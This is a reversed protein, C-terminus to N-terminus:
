PTTFDFSVPSFSPPFSVPTKSWTELSNRHRIALFYTHNSVSGPFIITVNGSSTLIGKASLVFDYPATSNHLEVVITDCAISSASMENNFLVPRMQGNGAYFGEIFVKLNLSVSSNISFNGTSYYSCKTATGVAITGSQATVNPVIAQIQNNNIVTFSAQVGNIKVLVVSSFGTGNITVVSGPLGNSPSFNSVAILPPVAVVVSKTNSCGSVNSTITVTYTTPGTPNVVPNQGLSTFGPPQSVWSYTFTEPITNNITISWNQIRGTDINAVDAVKLLWTGNANGTFANFNGDPVFSGTFPAAGASIPTTASMSFVTNTFNDASSGWRNSLTITNGSPSVLSIILDNDYTHTLNLKVSVVSTATLTAPNIGSVVISSSVGTPNNDPISVPVNNTFVVPVTQTLNSSASSSLQVPDGNCTPSLPTAAANVNLSTITASGHGICGTTQSTILVSYTTTSIPNVIPNQLSSTFGAPLSTWAYNFTEPISNVLTISWSQVRGTDM